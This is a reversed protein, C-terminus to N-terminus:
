KASFHPLRLWNIVLYSTTFYWLKFLKMFQEDSPLIGNNRWESIITKCDMSQQNNVGKISKIEASGHRSYPGFLDSANFVGFFCGKYYNNDNVQKSLFYVLNNVWPRTSKEDYSEKNREIDNKIVELINSVRKIFDTQTYSYINAWEYLVVSIEKKVLAGKFLYSSKLIDNSQITVSEFSSLNYAQLLENMQTAWLYEKFHNEKVHIKTGANLIHNAYKLAGSDVIQIDQTELMTEIEAIKLPERTQESENFIRHNWFYNLKFHAEYYSLFVRHFSFFNSEGVISLMKDLDKHRIWFLRETKTDYGDEVNITEDDEYGMYFSQLSPLTPFKGSVLLGTNPPLVRNM